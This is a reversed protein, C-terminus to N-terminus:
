GGGDDADDDVKRQNRHGVGDPAGSGTPEVVIPGVVDGGPRRDDLGRRPRDGAVGVARHSRGRACFSRSAHDGPCNIVFRTSVQSVLTAILPKTPGGHSGPSYSLAVSASASATPGARRR